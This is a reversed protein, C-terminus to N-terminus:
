RVDDDEEHLWANYRLLVIWAIVLIALAIGSLIDTM